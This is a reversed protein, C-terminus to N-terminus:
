RAAPEVLVAERVLEVIQLHPRLAKLEAAPLARLLHTPLDRTAQM